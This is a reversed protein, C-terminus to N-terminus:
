FKQLMVGNPSKVSRVLREYFGGWFPAYQVIFKWEIKNETLYNNFENSELNKWAKILDVNVKKFTVYNDSILIKPVGRRGVFRKFALLFNYTSLNSVLELHVARTSTCTFLLIYAKEGVPTDYLIVPGAFDLGSASFSRTYTVREPPLPSVEVNYHKARWRNCIVCSHLVRKITQRMRIIWYDNRLKAMIDRVGSHHLSRHCNWIILETFHHESPLLILNQKKEPNHMIRSKVYIIGDVLILRINKFEIHNNTIGDLKRLEKIQDFFSENQVIRICLKEANVIEEIKLNKHSCNECISSENNCKIRLTPNRANSIFRLCRAVVRFLQSLNSYKIMNIFNNKYTVLSVKVKTKLKEGAIKELFDNQALSELPWDRDHDVRLWQPGGWWENSEILKTMHMGRTLMDAVNIKGPCHFWDRPKSHKKIEYIRNSVFQKWKNKTDRIWYLLVTSDTWFYTCLNDINLTEKIVTAMKAGLLGGMLEMRPISIKESKNEDILKLNEIPGVRTKACILKVVVNDAVTKLYACSGYANQAADVFVHLEQEKVNGEIGQNLWRSIKFNELYKLEDWISKFDRVLNEPLPEDWTAGSKWIKQIGMKIRITFPSIFGLPDYISSCLSLLSRKTSALDWKGKSILSDVQFM